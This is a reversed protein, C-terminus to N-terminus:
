GKKGKVFAYLDVGAARCSVSVFYHTCAVGQPQVWVSPLRCLGGDGPLLAPLLPIQDASVLGPNQCRSFAGQSTCGGGSHGKAGYYVAEPKAGALGRGLDDPVAVGDPASIIYAYRDHKKM